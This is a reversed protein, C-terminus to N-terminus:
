IISLKIRYYEFFLETIAKKEEDKRKRTDALERRMAEAREVASAAEIREEEDKRIAEGTIRIQHALQSERRRLEELHVILNYLNAELLRSVADRVVQINKTEVTGSAVSGELENLLGVFTSYDSENRITGIPNDVFPHLAVKKGSSHDFKRAPKDLPAVLSGISGLLSYAETKIMGLEKELEQKEIHEIPKDTAVSEKAAEVRHPPTEGLRKEMGEISTQLEVLERIRGRLINYESFRGGYRDLENRLYRAEREVSSFARKFGGLYNSYSHLVKSFSGNARLMDQIFVDTASLVSEYREYINAHGKPSLDWNDIIHKLARAYSGKQDKIVNAKEFYTNELEPEVDLAAFEACASGFHSKESILSTTISRVKAEFGGLKGDFTSNLFTELESLRKEDTKAGFFM